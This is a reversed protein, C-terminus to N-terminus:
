SMAKIRRLVEEIDIYIRRRNRLGRIETAKPWQRGAERHRKVVAKMKSIQESSPNFLGEETRGEANLNGFQQQEYATLGAAWEDWHRAPKEAKKLWAREDVDTQSGGDAASLKCWLKHWDIQKSPATQVDWSIWPMETFVLQRFYTQPLQQFCRSSLRLNAVDQRGLQLVIMLKLEPSLTAFRDHSQNRYAGAAFVVENQPQEGVHCDQILEDLMPVRLPHAVLYEAGPICEYYGETTMNIDVDPHPPFDPFRTFYEANEVWLQRLEDLAVKGFRELSMRKFMDFCVPHMPIGSSDWTM